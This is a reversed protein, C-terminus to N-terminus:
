DGGGRARLAAELEAVRAQAADARREAAERQAAEAEARREAAERGQESEDLTRLYERTVPDFFRLLGERVCLELGLAESPLRGAANAWVRVYEGGRLRYGVLLQGLPSGSEDLLRTCTEDFMWYEPVGLRRYLACKDVLDRRESEPSLDELVFDPTAEEWLKYSARGEDEKARLAVFLDPVVMKHRHGEMYPMVGDMGVVGGRPRFHSGLVTECASLRRSHRLNQGMSDAILYGDGDFVVPPMPVYDWPERPAAGLPPPCSRGPPGGRAMCAHRTRAAAPPPPAEAQPQTAMSPVIGGDAREPSMMRGMMAERGVPTQARLRMQRHSFVGRPRASDVLPGPGFPVPHGSDLGKLIAEGVEVRAAAPSDIQRGRDAEGM